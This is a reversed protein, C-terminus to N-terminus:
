LIMNMFDTNYHTKYSERLKYEYASDEDDSDEDDSDEDDSDEDDSDEEIQSNHVREVDKYSKNDLGKFLKRIEIYIKGYEYIERAFKKFLKNVEEYM